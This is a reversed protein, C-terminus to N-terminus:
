RRRSTKPTLVFASTVGNFRGFGAIQGADNIAYATELVWGSSSSVLLSNLDVMVGNEAIFARTIGTRTPFDYHGSEGVVQGFKNIAHGASTDNVNLAGLDLMRGKRNTVFAHRGNATDTYGTVLGANNIGYAESSSFSTGSLTGLDRMQGNANTVFAHLYGNAVTASGAVQGVDNIAYGWSNGDATLGGLDRMVNNANTVFAHSIGLSLTSTGTVQGYTNIGYGYSNEGYITTGLTGLDQMQGNANTVFARVSTGNAIRSEGVVLGSGNIAHAISYDGGLTGLDTVQGNPKAVFAHSSFTSGMYQGAIQGSANIGRAIGNDLAFSTVNYLESAQSANAMMM